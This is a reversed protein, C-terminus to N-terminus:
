LQFQILNIGIIIPKCFHTNNKTAFIATMREYQEAAECSSSRLVTIDNKDATCAVPKM